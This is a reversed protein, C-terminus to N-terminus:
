FEMLTDVIKRAEEKEEERKVRLADTVKEEIVRRKEAEGMASIAKFAKEMREVKLQTEKLERAVETLACWLQAVKVDDAQTYACRHIKAKEILEALLEQAPSCLFEKWDKEEGFLVM